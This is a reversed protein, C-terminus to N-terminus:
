SRACRRTTCRRACTDCRCASASAGLPAALRPLDDARLLESLAYQAFRSARLLSRSARSAASRASRTARTSSRCSGAGAHAPLRQAAGGAARDGAGGAGRERRHRDRRRAQRRPRLRPELARHPLARRRLERPGQHRAADPRRARRRVLRGRAGHRTEGRTPSSRGSARAGRRLAGRRDRHRPAPARAAAVERRAAAPLAQIEDSPSFRAADLGPEARLLALLRALARRLGRGSLHQRALHRRDRRRARLDHVLRHRGAQLRIATGIGAFGAGIIAIPFDSM